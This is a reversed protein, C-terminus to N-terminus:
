SNKIREITETTSKNNVYEIYNQAVIQDIELQLDLWRPSGQAYKEQEQRLFVLRNESECMGTSSQEM